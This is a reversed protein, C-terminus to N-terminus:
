AFNIPNNSGNYDDKLGFKVPPLEYIRFHVGGQVKEMERQSLERIEAREDTEIRADAM